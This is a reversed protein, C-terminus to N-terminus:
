RRVGLALLHSRYVVNPKEGNGLGSCQLQFAYLTGAQVTTLAISTNFWDTMQRGACEYVVETGLGSVKVVRFARFPSDTNYAAAEASWIIAVPVSADISSEGTAPIMYYMGCLQTWGSAVIVQNPNTVAAPVTIAQGQIHLTNVALKSIFTGINSASIPNNKSVMATQYTNNVTDLVIQNNNDTIIIGKLLAYTAWMWGNSDVSFYGQRGTSPDYTWSTPDQPDLQTWTGINITSSNIHASVIGSNARIFDAVVSGAILEMIAAKKIMAHNIYTKGADIIFPAVQDRSAPDIVAFRNAAVLFTSFPVGDNIESNLGFGSVYKTGDVTQEVRVGWGAQLESIWGAQQVISGAISASDGFVEDWEAINIGNFIFNAIQTEYLEDTLQRMVLGIDPQTTAVVGPDNFPGAVEATSVVRVWYIYTTGKDVPDSYIPAVSTGIRTAGEADNARAASLGSRATRLALLAADNDAVYNATADHLATLADLMSVIAPTRESLGAYYAYEAEESPTMFLDEVPINNTGAEDFPTIVTKRWIEYYALPGYHPDNWTLMIYSFGASAVVNQLKPPAYPDGGYTENDIGPGSGGPTTPPNTITTGVGVRGGGKVELIGLDKLDRVFVARDLVDGRTGRMTELTEKLADHARQGPQQPVAPLRPNSLKITM